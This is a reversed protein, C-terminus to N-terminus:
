YAASCSHRCLVFYVFHRTTFSKCDIDDSGLFLTELINMSVSNNKEDKVLIDVGASQACVLALVELLVCIFHQLKSHM